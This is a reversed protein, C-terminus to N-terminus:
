QNEEVTLTEGSTPLSPSAIAVLGPRDDVDAVFLEGPLKDEGLQVGWEDLIEATTM